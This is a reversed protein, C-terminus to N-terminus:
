SVPCLCPKTVTPFCLLGVTALGPPLVTVTDADKKYIPRGHNQGNVSFTGRLISEVVKNACKVVTIDAASGVVEQPSFRHIFFGCKKQGEHM